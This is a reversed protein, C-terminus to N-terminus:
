QHFLPLYAKNAALLEDLMAVATEPPLAVLPDNLLAQRALTLNGTLAAEVILEQNSIHRSVVAHIAPPLDGASIGRAGGRSVVGSTEVVVGAPLNGIQGQNPLNMIGTYRGDTAL